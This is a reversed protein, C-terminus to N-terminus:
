DTFRFKYSSLLKIHKKCHEAADKPNMDEDDVLCQTELKRIMDKRATIKMKQIDALAVGRHLLEAELGEMHGEKTTVLKGYPTRGTTAPTLHQQQVQQVANQKKFKTAKSDMFALKTTTREESFHDERLTRNVRTLRETYGDDEQLRYTENVRKITSKIIEKIKNGNASSEDDEEKKLDLPTASQIIAMCTRHQESRNTQAVLKAEKVVTEVFQTQSAIPLYTSHMDLCVAGVDGNYDKSRLDVKDVILQAAQLAQEDYEADDDLMKRIFKDLTLLDFTRVHAASEFWIKGSHPPMSIDEQDVFGDAM